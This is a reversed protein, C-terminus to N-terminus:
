LVLSNKQWLPLHRITERKWVFLKMENRGRRCSYHVNRRTTPPPPSTVVEELGTSMPTNAKQTNKTQMNLSSSFLTLVLTTVSRKFSTPPSTKPVTVTTGVSRRALLLFLSAGYPVKASSIEGARSHRIFPRTSSIMSSFIKSIQTTM